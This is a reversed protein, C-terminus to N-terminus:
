GQESRLEAQVASLLHEIEDLLNTVRPQECRLDLEEDPRDQFGGVREIRM